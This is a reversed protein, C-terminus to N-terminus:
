YAKEVAVGSYYHKLISQYDAGAQAMGFAGVQCLGVGHGWGKGTFVFRKVNGAEDVERGIVFLNERLGLAWRVRLGKLGLEGRTGIVALEVVRGSVGIRVPVVDRVTGVDGYRTIARAVEDPTMRVEWRYYRSSRDAAAGLRSQEAELFVIRGEREVFRVKEGAALQLESVAQRSGDLVRFLRVAPDLHRTEQTEGRKLSLAGGSAARFEATQLAPPGARDAARALLAIAQTRSLRANARLTNDPFPSLVAEQVLVAAATREGDNGLERRDEVQLLYEADQPALLREGREEWCLGHVLHAFFSGRRTLPGGAAPACDRRRLAVGLRALWGRLEAEGADGKLASASYMRPDVVDLAILLATEWNLAESEGLGRTPAETRVRSWAEREPTCAVGRLYPVSEGEFINEGQETHGGCTSTYLANIYAGRYSAAMGRTEDVARDSLPQETSRGRYVQCAPTACIDYGKDQFQGRNRLAYTRAAVAQAKLAELQPFAQPSLENPVVGKLYDEMNLVNVVTLAGSGGPRVELLGRYPQAELLLSEDSRSPLVLVSALEEGTEVLRLRGGAGPVLDEVVFGTLSAGALQTRLDEAAERTGLDGLRVQHTRTEPSWRVGLPAGTARQGRAGLERAAAEDAFSGVQVRYRRATESPAVALFTARALSSRRPAADAALGRAWLVVGSDAGISARPGDTLVGVRIVPAPVLSEIAPLALVDPEVRHAKPLTRCSAALGMAVAVSALAVRTPGRRLRRLLERAVARVV